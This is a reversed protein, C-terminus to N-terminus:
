RGFRRFGGYNSYPFQTRPPPSPSAQPGTLYHADVTEDATDTVPTSQPGDWACTQRFPLIAERLGDLKFTLTSELQGKPQAQIVLTKSAILSKIFSISGGRSFLGVAGSAVANQWTAGVIQKDDFRYSVPTQHSPLSKVFYVLAATQGDRCRLVLEGHVRGGDTSPAVEISQTSLLVMSQRSLKDHSRLLQWAGITAKAGLARIRELREQLATQICMKVAESPKPDVPENFSRQFEEIAATTKAGAFGDIPGPEFGLLALSYQIALILPDPRPQAVVSSSPLQAERSDPKARESTSLISRCQAISYERRKAEAVGFVSASDWQEGTDRLALRCVSEPQLESVAQSVTASSWGFIGSLTGVVQFFRSRFLLM